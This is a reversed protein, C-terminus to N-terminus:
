LGSRRAHLLPALRLKLAQRARSLRSKVTGIPLDLIQAMESYPVDQLDRLLIIVADDPELSNLVKQVQEQTQKQEVAKGPDFEPDGVPGM